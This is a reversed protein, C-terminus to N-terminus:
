RRALTGRTGDVRVRDGDHLRDLCGHVSMVAPIQLERATVAGHSLPGGSETIVAVARYFLPTWTPNTTRAVLVAGQPFRAFDDVSHVVCVPGEAVGPSGPLGTLGDADAPVAEGAGLIWEPSRMRAANWAEKAVRASRALSDWTPATDQAIADALAAARCFFVDTSADLIGRAVLRDGLASLGRRLPLTLRTTQYHELDDLSTYARALRLLEAFSYRLDAPVRALVAHEADVQRVKLAREAAREEAAPPRDLMLRLTDLVAWPAEVWTPHYADFELERHGHDRLFRAFRAVFAPFADFRREALLTRSNGADLLTRLGPTARAERALDGLERNIAGTKTDCHALLTSALAAGAEAGVVGVLLGHVLRCLAGHVISIAINPRFYEAGHRRVRQIHDWLQCLTAHELPEAQLEGLGLLYHDLDRAWEAPLDQVWGYRERLTPLLARLDDISRLAFPSQRAYLEVATQNGYVYHEHLAFWKGDFRPFGLRQFSWALSAHFGEDVFDWTLPTIPSPFREASEDRTWRPAVATIPRAQLLVLTDGVFGWEIDQPFRFQEEVGRLLEALRALQPATLAPRVADAAAVPEHRTGGATAVLRAAKTAITQRRVAGTAKDLAFHDVPAEGGVVTEGLGWAADVIMEGLDGTVPNVSFAVGAVDCAVLQQIVVAMAADAHDFGHAHRYAIARDHWLSGFCDRVRALIEVEGRCGLYTDHQGAFAAGALDELTSSSRVAFVADSPFARLGERIADAVTEPLPVRALAGRLAEASRQLAAADHVPLDPVTALVSAAVAAFARYAAATVVIGPPVPFGAQVLRALNAGKGGAQALATCEADDLRLVWTPM